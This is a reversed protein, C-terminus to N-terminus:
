AIVCRMAISETVGNRTAPSTNAARGSRLRRVALRQAATRACRDSRRRRRHAAAHLGPARESGRMSRGRVCSRGTSTRIATGVRHLTAVGGDAVGGRAGVVNDLRVRKEVAVGTAGDDVGGAFEAQRGAAMQGREIARAAGVARERERMRHGVDRASSRGRQACSVSRGRSSITVSGCGRRPAPITACIPALSMIMGGSRRRGPMGPGTAM